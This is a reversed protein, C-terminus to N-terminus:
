LVLSTKTRLNTRNDMARSSPNTVPHPPPTVGGADGDGDGDGDGVSSGDGVDGGEGVDTGSVSVASGVATISGEPGAVQSNNVKDTAGLM